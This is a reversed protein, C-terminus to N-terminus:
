QSIIMWLITITEGTNKTLLYLNINYISCFKSLSLCARCNQNITSYRIVSHLPISPLWPMKVINHFIIHTVFHTEILTIQLLHSHNKPIATFCTLIHRLIIRNNLPIRADRIHWFQIDRKRSARPISIEHWVDKQRNRLLRVKECFEHKTRAGKTETARWKRMRRPHM